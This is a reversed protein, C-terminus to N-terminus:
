KLLIMKKVETYNAATLRYFYTGSPYATANWQVEYTGPQLQQNVLTEVERGLIDYIVLRVGEADGGTLPLGLPPAVDFKIRTNPNFPNPYNQKLSYEKPIYNGTPQVGVTQSYKITAYDIGTGSGTSGGTVYVNFSSDVTIWAAYDNSNAPGNYRTVWQQAGSTDYKITAYDYGTTTGESYGTVYIMGLKDFSMSVAYDAQSAPGDYRAVWIQSGSSNYKVTAYDYNTGNGFSYGTVYVNGSVDVLIATPKDDSNGPGNYRATWVQNGSSSYKITAYDNGTSSSPSYGTVYVNASQDLALAVAYDDGGNDYREVWQQIGSSNYKVTAYDYHTAGGQSYGTVYVNGTNDIQLAVAFDDVNATGNYRAIWQQVGNSDYKITAYDYNTGNGYSFGTVYVNGSSDIKLDSADDDLSAPGNYREVWLQTGASNYKITAYDSNTGNGESWGTVYVNGYKDVAMATPMDLGNGPGNYRATWLQTGVSSYKITLYDESGSTTDHRSEGTVYVNGFNDVAVISAFDYNGPGSYIAVWQQTPSQALTISSFAALLLIIQFRSILHKRISVTM